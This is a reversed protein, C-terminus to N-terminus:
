YGTEFLVHGKDPTKDGIRKLLSRAEAFPWAKANIAHERLNDM